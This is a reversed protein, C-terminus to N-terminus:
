TKSCVYARKGWCKLDNWKGNSSMEVCDEKNNADNPEGDNWNTYSDISSDKWHFSNEVSKDDLGIWTQEGGTLAKVFTNEEKGGWSQCQTEADAQNKTTYTCPYGAGSTMGDAMGRSRGVTKKPTEITQSGLM